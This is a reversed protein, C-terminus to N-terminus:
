ASEKMREGRLVDNFDGFGPEPLYVEVSRGERMWRRATETAVREGGGGPDRDAAIVVSRVCAPLKLAKLGAKSVASWGPLQWLQMASLTTEIGEGVILQEFVPALRVAGGCMESYLKRQSSVPAKGSGDPVLYTRHITTPEGDPGSVLALLAPWHTFAEGDDTYPLRPHFRLGHADRIEISRSALYRDAPTGAIVRSEAWRRLAKANPGPDPRPELETEPPAPPLEAHEGWLGRSRLVDVLHQQECGSYCHVRAEDNEGAWIIFSPRGDKHAPCKCVWGSPVRKAGLAKALSAADPRKRARKAEDILDSARGAFMGPETPIGLQRMLDLQPQTARKKRWATGRPKM